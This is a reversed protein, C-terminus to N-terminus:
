HCRLRERLVIFEAIAANLENVPFGVSLAPSVRALANRAPGTFTVRRETVVVGEARAADTNFQIAGETSIAPPLDLEVQGGVMRVPYGGPLGLPGCLHRRINREDLIGKLLAAVSAGTIQNMEAGRIAALDSVM